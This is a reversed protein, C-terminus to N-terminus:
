RCSISPEPSIRSTTEASNRPLQCSKLQCSADRPGEAIASSRATVATTAHRHRNTDTVLRHEILVALCQIVCVVDYSLGALRRTVFRCINILMFTQTFIYLNEFLRGVVIHDPANVLDILKTPYLESTVDLVDGVNAVPASGINTTRHRLLYKRLRDETPVCSSETFHSIRILLYITNTLAGNTLYRYCYM